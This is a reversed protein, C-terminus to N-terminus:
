CSNDLADPTRLVVLGGMILLYPLIMSGNLLNDIAVMLILAAMALRPNPEALADDGTPAWVARIVPLFLITGFAILGVLGYFGFVLLWLNWPRLDGNQWWNWQGYGLLPKELAVTIQSEDRALRWALSHRGIGTLATSISRAMENSQAVTRLSVLNSMRFLTFSLISAVLLAVFARRFSRQRLMALPALFLLLLISGASQCLLTVLALGAAVWEMPLGLIRDALRHLALFCALLAAAAMWTGLQNGDELFGIPRFGIYRTAGVWRYPQYGYFFAYLQPGAFIEFLCVPVYCIGAIVCAKAALLLSRNDSFYIRGLMWPVGWSIAQYAAGLLAERHTNWHTAASLLPVCCWVAMPLDCIDPRFNKLDAFHFIIVGSLAALGTATAKTVFYGGPLCVGLIWYSFPDTTVRYNAGPLIAWGGLFNALIAIRVPFRRFLYAGAPIFGLLIVLPPIHM